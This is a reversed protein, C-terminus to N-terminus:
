SAVELGMNNLDCGAYQSLRFILIQLERTTMAHLWQMTTVSLKPQCLRSNGIAAGFYECAGQWYTCPYGQQRASIMDSLDACLQILQDQSQTRFDDEIEKRLKLGAAPILGQLFRLIIM